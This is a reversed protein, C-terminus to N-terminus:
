SVRTTPNPPTVVPNVPTYVPTPNPTPPTTISATPQNNINIIPQKSTAPTQNASTAAQQRTTTNIPNISAALIKQNLDALAKNKADYISVLRDYAAQNIKDALAPNYKKIVAADAPTKNILNIILIFLVFAFGTAYSFNLLRSWFTNDPIMSFEEMKIQTKEVGLSILNNVMANMFATPGCIFFTKGYVNGVFNSIVEADVRKYIINKAGTAVPEETLSFLTSIIPNNKELEMIEKYFTAGQLTRASYILSFKSNLGRSAVYDLTSVFPTIGIGGAIMVLDSYKTEDYYFKGYPGAVVLEDGKKLRLLGQTFSGQVKIGFRIFNRQTPSSAISFAHKDEPMGQSNNYSIMAYQGPRYDFVPRGGKDGVELVVLDSSPFDIKKIYYKYESM